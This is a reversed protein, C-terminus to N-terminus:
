VNRDFSQTLWVKAFIVYSAKSNNSNYFKMIGKMIEKKAGHNNILIFGSM